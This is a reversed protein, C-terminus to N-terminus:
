SYKCKVVIQLFEVCYTMQKWWSIVRNMSSRKIVPVIALTSSSVANEHGTHPIQSFSKSTSSPGLSYKHWFHSVDDCVAVLIDRSTNIDQGWTGLDHLTFTFTLGNRCNMSHPYSDHQYVGNSIHHCVCLFWIEDKPSVSSDM